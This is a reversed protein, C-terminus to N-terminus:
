CPGSVFRGKMLKCTAKDVQVRMASGGAPDQASLRRIHGRALCLIMLFEVTATGRPNQSSGTLIDVAFDAFGNLEHPLKMCHRCGYMPIVDPLEIGFLLMCSKWSMMQSPSARDPVRPLSALANAAATHGPRGGGHTGQLGGNQLHPTAVRFPRFHHGTQAEALVVGGAVTKDDFGVDTFGARRVVM